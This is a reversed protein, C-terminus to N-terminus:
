NALGRMIDYFFWGEYLTWGGMLMVVVGTLTALLGRVKEGVAAGLTTVILMTPVTGLGFSLMILGSYLPDASAVAKLTVSFVLSCPVLGNLLGAVVPLMPALRPYQDFHVIGCGDGTCPQNLRRLSNVFLWAGILIILGGTVILLLGQTKGVIGTQVLVRGTIGGVVGFMVYVSIRSVHYAIQPRVKQQWGHGAFYGSAMGGCMGLCHFAGAIGTLFALTYNFDANM